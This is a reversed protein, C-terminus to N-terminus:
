FERAAAKVGVSPMPLPAMPLHHPNSSIQPHLGWSPDTGKYTVGSAQKNEWELMHPCLLDEDSPCSEGPIILWCRSRPSKAELFTLYIETLDM